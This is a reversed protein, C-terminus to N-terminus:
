LTIPKIPEAASDPLSFYFIAGKGAESEAWVEGGHKAVIKEVIALGIGTGEFEDASHLRQFVKFLKGSYKEDFGVGNDKVYFFVKGNQRSFGVEVTADPNKSSYKQANSLLNIWVQRLVSPDAMVVPLPHVIFITNIGNGNKQMTAAIEEVMEKTHVEQLSIDQRSMRSFTLLDDILTGMRSTNNRIIGTIRRGEESLQSGFEEELISSFGVIARLPARLDHSVSYSFAELDENSKQLQLTRLAIQDELGANIVKIRDEYARRESIDRLIIQTNGNRLKRGILEAVFVSRDKRRMLWESHVITGPRFRMKEQPLKREEGPALLDAFSKLLIEELTYGFMQYGAENVDIYQEQENSLFIGDSSQEVLMRYHEESQKLRKNSEIRDTVDRFNIMIAAFAEDNLLNVMTGEVWLYHGKAHRIRLLMDFPVGPKHIVQQVLRKQYDLDDPHIENEWKKNIVDEETHGLISEASPSRYIIKLAKDILSIVDNNYKILALYRAENRQMEALSQEVKIGLMKNSSKLEEELLRSHTIDKIVFYFANIAGNEAKLANATIAGYFAGGDKRYIELESRWTGATTVTNEIERIDEVSLNALRLEAATKGIAEQKSIGFLEEAGLNWSIIRQDLGRSFIAESSHEVINALHKFQNQLAKQHGIDRSVAVFGTIEGKENRTTTTSSHVLVTEGNKRKRKVEGSWYDNQNVFDLVDAIQQADMETQLLEISRQGLAEERTYGYILQAGKNWTKIRHDADIMYIADSAENIQKSLFSLEMRENNRETFDRVFVSYHDLHGKDDKWATIVLDAWFRSGDKKALWTESEYYENSAALKLHQHPLDEEMGAAPYLQRFHVARMEAASYGFISAAGASWQQLNGKADLTVIAYDKVSVSVANFYQTSKQRATKLARSRNRWLLLFILLFIIAALALALAAEVIRQQSHQKRIKALSQLQMAKLKTATDRVSQLYAMGDGSKVLALGATLDAGAAISMTSDILRIRSTTMQILSRLLEGQTAPAQADQAPLTKGLQLLGTKSEAYAQSFRPLRTLLFARSNTEIAEALFSLRDTKLIIEQRSSIDAAFQQGGSLQQRYIYFIIASLIIALIFKRFFSQTTKRTLLM